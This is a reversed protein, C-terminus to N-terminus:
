VAGVREAPRGRTPAGASEMQLLRRKMRLGTRSSFGGLKGGCGSQGCLVHAWFGDVVHVTGRQVVEDCARICASCICVGPPGSVM